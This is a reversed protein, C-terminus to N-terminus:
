NTLLFQLQLDNIQHYLQRDWHGRPRLRPDAAARTSLNHTRIGGVAHIDTTLTTHQVPLPRQTPNIERGSSNKQAHVYAEIVLLGQVGLSLQAM